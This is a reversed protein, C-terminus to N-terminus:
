KLLKLEFELHKLKSLIEPINGIVTLDDQHYWETRETCKSDFFHVRFADPGEDVNTTRTSYIRFFSSEDKKNAIIIALTGKRTQVVDFLQKKNTKM